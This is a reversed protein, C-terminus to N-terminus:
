PYELWMVYGNVENITGTYKVLGSIWNAFICTTRQNRNNNKESYHHHLTYKYKKCAWSQSDGCKKWHNYHKLTIQETMDSEERGWTTFGVLSRQGHFEGPLFVPIPLWERRYLLGWKFNLPPSLCSFVHLFYIVVVAAFYFTYELSRIYFCFELWQDAKGILMETWYYCIANSFLDISGPGTDRGDNQMPFFLLLFSNILHTM